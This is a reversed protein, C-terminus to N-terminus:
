RSKFIRGTGQQYIMVEQTLCYSHITRSKLVSCCHSHIPTPPPLKLFCVACLAVTPASCFAQLRIPDDGKRSRLDGCCSPIYTKLQLRWARLSSMVTADDVRKEPPFLGLFKNTPEPFLSNKGLRLIIFTIKLYPVTRSVSQGPSKKKSTAIWKWTM